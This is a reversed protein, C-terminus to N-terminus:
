ETRRIVALGAFLVILGIVFPGGGLVALWKLWFSTPLSPSEPGIALMILFALSGLVSVGTVLIGVALVIRGLIKM